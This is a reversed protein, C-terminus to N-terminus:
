RVILNSIAVSVRSSITSIPYPLILAFSAVPETTETFLSSNLLPFITVGSFRNCPLTAPKDILVPPAGPEPDVILILPPADRPADLLGSITISPKGISLLATPPDLDIKLVILGLSISDKETSLSAEAM